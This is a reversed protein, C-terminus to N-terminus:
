LHAPTHITQQLESNDSLMCHEFLTTRQYELTPRNSIPNMEFWLHSQTRWQSSKLYIGINLPKLTLTTQLNFIIFDTSNSVQQIQLRNALTIIRNITALNNQWLTTSGLPRGWVACEVLAELQLMLKRLVQPNQQSRWVARCFVFGNLLWQIWQITNCLKMAKHHIRLSLKLFPYCRHLCHFRGGFLLSSIYQDNWPTKSYAGLSVSHHNFDLIWYILFWL